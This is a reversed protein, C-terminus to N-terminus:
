VPYIEVPQNLELTNLTNIQIKVQLNIMFLVTNSWSLEHNRPKNLGHINHQTLEIIAM